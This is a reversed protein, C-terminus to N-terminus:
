SEVYNYSVFGTLKRGNSLLFVKEQLEQIDMMVKQARRLLAKLTWVKDM